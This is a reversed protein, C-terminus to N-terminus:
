IEHGCGASCSTAKEQPFRARPTAPAVTPAVAGGQPENVRSSCGFTLHIGGPHAGGKGHGRLHDRGLSGTHPGTGRAIRRSERPSRQSDNARARAATPCHPLPTAEESSHPLPLFTSTNIVVHCTILNHFSHLVQNEVRTGWQEDSTRGQRTARPAVRMAKLTSVVQSSSHHFLSTCEGM